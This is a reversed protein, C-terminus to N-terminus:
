GIERTSHNVRLAASHAQPAPNWQLPPTELPTICAPFLNVNTIARRHTVVQPFAILFNASDASHIAEPQFLLMGPYNVCRPWVHGSLNLRLPTSERACLREPFGVMNDGDLLTATTTPQVIKLGEAHLAVFLCTPVLPLVWVLFKLFSYVHNSVNVHTLKAFKCFLPAFWNRTFLTNSTAGVAFLASKFSLYTAAHGQNELPRAEVDCIFPCCALRLKGKRRCEAM